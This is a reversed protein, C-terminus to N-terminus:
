NGLAGGATFYYILKNRLRKSREGTQNTERVSAILLSAQILEEVLFLWDLSM